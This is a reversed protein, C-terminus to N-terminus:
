PKRAAAHYERELEATRTDNRVSRIIDALRDVFREM